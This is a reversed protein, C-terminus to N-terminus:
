GQFRLEAPNLVTQGFPQRRLLWVVKLVRLDLLLELFVFTAHNESTANHFM